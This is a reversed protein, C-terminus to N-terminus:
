WRSLHADGELLFLLKGDKKLTVGQSGAVIANPSNTMLPYELVVAQYTLSEMEPPDKMVRIGNVVETKWNQLLSGSNIKAAEDLEFVGMFEVPINLGPAIRITSLCFWCITKQDTVPVTGNITIKLTDASAGADYSVEGEGTIESNSIELGEDKTFTPLEPTPTFIPTPSPTPTPTPPIPTATPPVPTPTATPPVSTPTATPPVPTPTATPPIPTPTPPIPTLTPTPEPAGCAALLVLILTLGTIQLLLREHNM